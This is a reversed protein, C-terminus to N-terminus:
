LFWTWFNWFQTRGFERRRKWICGFNWRFTPIGNTGESYSQL